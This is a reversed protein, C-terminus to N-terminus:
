HGACGAKKAAMRDVAQKRIAVFNDANIVADGSPALKQLTGTGGRAELENEAVEEVVCSDGLDARADIRDEMESGVGIEAVAGLKRAAVEVLIDDDGPIDKFRHTAM